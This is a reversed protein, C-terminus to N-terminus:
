RILEVTQGLDCLSYVGGTRETLLKITYIGAPIDYVSATATFGAQQYRPANLHHSVDPRSMREVPIVYSSGESEMFIRSTMEEPV